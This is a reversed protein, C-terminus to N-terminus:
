APQLVPRFQFGAPYYRSRSLGLPTIAFDILLNHHEDYRENAATVLGLSAMNFLHDLIVPLSCQREDGYEVKLEELLQQGTRSGRTSLLRLLNMRMPLRMSM